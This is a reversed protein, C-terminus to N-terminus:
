TEITSLRPNRRGALRLMNYQIGYGLWIRYAQAANSPQNAYEKVVTLVSFSDFVLVSLHDM